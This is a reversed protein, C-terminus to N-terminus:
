GVPTSSLATINSSPHCPFNLMARGCRTRWSVKWRVDHGDYQAVRGLETSGCWTGYGLMPLTAVQVLLPLCVSPLSSCVLDQWSQVLVRVFTSYCGMWAM